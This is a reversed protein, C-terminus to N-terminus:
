QEIKLTRSFTNEIQFINLTGELRLDLNAPRPARVEAAM